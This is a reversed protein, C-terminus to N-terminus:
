CWVRRTKPGNKALNPWKQGEETQSVGLLKDQTTMIPWTRSQDLSSFAAGEEAKERWREGTSCCVTGPLDIVSLGIETM